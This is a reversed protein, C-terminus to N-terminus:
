DADASLEDEASPGTLRRLLVASDNGLADRIRQEHERFLTAPLTDLPFYAVARTEASTALAGGVVRCVFSFIIEDLRPWSYIGALRVVEVALGTEERVERVVGEWPAEGAEM